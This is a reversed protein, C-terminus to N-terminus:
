NQCRKQTKKTSSPLSLILSGSVQGMLSVSNLHRKAPMGIIAPNTAKHNILPDPGTNSLFGIARHKETPPPVSGQGGDPDACTLFM